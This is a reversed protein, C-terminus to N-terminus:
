SKTAGILSYGTDAQFTAFDISASARLREEVKHTNVIRTFSGSVRRFTGNEVGYRCPPALRPFNAPTQGQTVFSCSEDHMNAIERPHPNPSRSSGRPTPNAYRLAASSTAPCASEDSASEPRPSAGGPQPLDLHHQGLEGAHDAVEVALDRRLSARRSRRGWGM